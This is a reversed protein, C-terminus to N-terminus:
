LQRKEGPSKVFDSIVDMSIETESSVYFSGQNSIDLLVMLPEDKVPGLSLAERATKALGTPSFAWYFKVGDTGKYNEAVMQVADQIDDQEEDDGGEHFVILCRFANINDTSKNLDGYPKPQYPFDSIYDGQEIMGRVNANILPRDGGDAPKPGFIMLTPVGQVHLRKSIETKADREEFPLAGFTMEAFYSDFGSQDHDSSVFLIQVFLSHQHSLHPPVTYV